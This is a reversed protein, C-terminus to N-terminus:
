IGHPGCQAWCQQPCDIECMRPPSCIISCQAMCKPYCLYDLNSRASSIKHRHTQAYTRTLHYRQGSTTILSVEATFKPLTQKTEGKINEIRVRGTPGKERRKERIKRRNGRM